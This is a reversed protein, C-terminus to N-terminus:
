QSLWLNPDFWVIRPHKTPYKMGTSQEAHRRYYFLTKEIGRFPGLLALQSVFIRDSSSFKQFLDTLGIYDRRILGFVVLTPPTRWSTAFRASPEPSLFEKRCKIKRIIQNHEDIQGQEAYCLIIDPNNDLVQVCEELFNPEYLDDHCTWKFYEGNSRRYVETFNWSAGRNEHNRFYLIRSDQNAFYRCISETRDTSGNDSIILEFEEYTQDLLSILASELYNEGNYIPLGISVKKRNMCKKSM